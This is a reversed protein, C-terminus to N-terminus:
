DFPYHSLDMRGHMVHMISVGPAEVRYFILYDNVPLSRYGPRIEDRARGAYPMDRGTPFSADVSRRFPRRGAAPENDEAIHRWINVVDRRATQDPPVGDPPSNAKARHV